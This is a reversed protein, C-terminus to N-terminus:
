QHLIDLDYAHESIKKYDTAKPKGKKNEKKLKATLDM